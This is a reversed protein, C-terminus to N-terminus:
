RRCREGAAELRFDSLRVSSSECDVVFPSGKIGVGNLTVAVRYKRAPAEVAFRVVYTSDGASVAQVKGDEHGEVICDFHATFVDLGTRPRNLFDRALITFQTPIASRCKLM